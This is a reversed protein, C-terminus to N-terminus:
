NAYTFANKPSLAYPLRLVCKNEKDPSGIAALLKCCSVHIALIESLNSSILFVAEGRFICSLFKIGKEVVGQQSPPSLDVYFRTEQDASKQMIGVTPPSKEKEPLSEDYPPSSLVRETHVYVDPDGLCLILSVQDRRDRM